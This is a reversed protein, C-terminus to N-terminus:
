MNLFLMEITSKFGIPCCKFHKRIILGNLTSTFKIYIEISPNHQQNLKPRTPRFLAKRTKSGNELGSRLEPEKM